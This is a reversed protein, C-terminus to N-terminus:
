IRLRSDSFHRVKAELISERIGDKKSYNSPLLIEIMM